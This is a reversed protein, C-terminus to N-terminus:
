QCTGQLAGIRGDPETFGTGAPQDARYLRIEGKPLSLHCSQEEQDKGKRAPSTGPQTGYPYRYGLVAGAILAVWCFCFLFFTLSSPNDM